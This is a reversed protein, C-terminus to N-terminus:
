NIINATTPNKAYGGRTDSDPGDIEYYKRTTASDTLYDGGKAGYLRVMAYPNMISPVIHYDPNKEYEKLLEVGRALADESKKQATSDNKGKAIAVDRELRSILPIESYANTDGM